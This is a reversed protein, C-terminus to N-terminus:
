SLVFLRRLIATLSSLILRLWNFWDSRDTLSWRQWVLFAPKFYFSSSHFSGAVHMDSPNFRQVLLAAALVCGPSWCSSIFTRGSSKQVSTSQDTPKQQQLSCLFVAESVGGGELWCPKVFITIGSINALRNIFDHLTQDCLTASAVNLGTNSPKIACYYYCCYYYDNNQSKATINFVCLSHAVKVPKKYYKSWIERLFIFSTRCGSAKRTHKCGRRLACTTM